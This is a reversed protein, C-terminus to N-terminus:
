RRPRRSAWADVVVVVVVSSAGAVSCPTAQLSTWYVSGYPLACPAKLRVPNFAGKSDPTREAPQENPQGGNVM